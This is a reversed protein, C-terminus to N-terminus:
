PLHLILRGGSAEAAAAQHLESRPQSDNRIAQRCDPWGEPLIAGQDLRSATLEEHHVYRRKEEELLTYPSHSLDGAKNGTVLESERSWICAFVFGNDRAFQALKNRYRSWLNSRDEALVGDIGHPRISLFRNLPLGIARAFWWAEDIAKVQRGAISRGVKKRGIKRKETWSRPRPEVIRTDMETSLGIVPM